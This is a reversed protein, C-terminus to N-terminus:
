TSKRDRRSTRALGFDLLKLGHKSLFVNSPKLDRHVIGLEHLVDLARLIQKEVLVAESAPMPGHNIREALSQGELLELVIVLRGDQEVVDFVQCINPHNIRALSRAECWLRDRSNSDFSEHITKIAVARQLRADWGEYVTGMGGEGIKRRVQYPGFSVGILSAASMVSEPMSCRRGRELREALRSSVPTLPLVVSPM